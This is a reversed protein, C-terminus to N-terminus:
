YKWVVGLMFQRDFVPMPAQYGYYPQVLKFDQAFLNYASVNIDLNKFLNQCKVTFDVLWDANYLESELKGNTKDNAFAYTQGSRASLYSIRPAFSFKGLKYFAGANIKITSFGLFSKKDATLFQEYTNGQPLALAFNLFGGYKPYSVTLESEIGASIIEGFNAYSSILYVIPNTVDIYFLNTKLNAYKNFKYGVELELTTALEPKLAVRAGSGWARTYAQFLTPTRFSQSFLLKANLKNANYVASLRPLFADGFPTNEYRAGMTFKVKSLNFSYQAYSYYTYRALNQATDAPNNSLILGIRSKTSISSINDTLTGFGVLLNEKFTGNIETRWKDMFTSANYYNNVISSSAPNVLTGIVNSTTYELIPSITINKHINALYDVHFSEVTNQAKVYYIGNIQPYIQYSNQGSYILSNFQYNFTLNKAKADVILHRFLRYANQNNLQTSPISGTFASFNRTSQPNTSTGAHIAIQGLETKLGGSINTNAAIENSGIVGTNGTWRIGKLNGAKHTIINIVTVEAFGGYLVSGPGRIIEVREMMSCPYAGILNINGFSLETTGVGNIMLLVKGEHAWIGRFGISFIGDVDVALDFGPVMRLVDALDRTGYMAMDEKTIVSVISPAEELTENKKSAIQVYKDQVSDAKLLENARIRLWTSSDTQGYVFNSILFLFVILTSITKM